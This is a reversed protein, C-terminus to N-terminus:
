FEMEMQGRPNPQTTQSLRRIRSLPFQEITKGDLTPMYGQFRGAAQKYFFAIARTKCFDRMDRAWDLDHERFNPGSEGGYIIWHIKDHYMELTPHWALKGLAPEYSIFRIRAPVNALHGIRNAVKADEVSTGLWVNRYGKGWDDPLMRGINEPRKTLLLFDLNDCERILPWVEPRIDNADPHDEFIDMLSGVFVLRPRDRGLIGPKDKAQRNWTRANAWPTKTRQRKTTKAPGWLNKGFRNIVLERAYCRRCGESQEICGLWFNATSDCWRIKTDSGM